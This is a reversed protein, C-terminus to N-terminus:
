DRRKKDTGNARRIEWVRARIEARREPPLNHAGSGTGTAHNRRYSALAHRTGPHRKAWRKLGDAFLRAAQEEHWAAREEITM